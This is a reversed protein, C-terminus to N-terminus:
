LNPSSKTIRLNPSPECDRLKRSSRTRLPHPAAPAQNIGKKFTADQNFRHAAMGEHERRLNDFVGVLEEVGAGQWARMYALMVRVCACVVRMRAHVRVRV